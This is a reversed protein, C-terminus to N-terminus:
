DQSAPVQSRHEDATPADQIECYNRDERRDGIAQGHPDQIHAQNKSNLKFEVSVYQVISGFSMHAPLMQMRLKGGCRWEVKRLRLLCGGVTDGIVDVQVSNNTSVMWDPEGLNRRFYERIRPHQDEPLM